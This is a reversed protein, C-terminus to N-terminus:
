QFWPHHEIEELSPRKDPTKRLCWRLLHRCEKSLFTPLSLRQKIIKQITSFPVSGFLVEYLTIGVSWVTTSRAQYQGSRFLEPPAFIATGAYEEYSDKLFDGCGFDLLKLEGTDTCILVNEPKVDRHMVGRSECHKLANVLQLIVPKAMEEDIDENRDSYTLLDECPDPREMIMVYHKPQEFWDLIRVINPCAPPSSVLLMLAVELPMSGQLSPFQKKEASEKSVYKIAVELGDSIRTGAYVTGYGGEGLKPGQIYPLGEITHLDSQDSQAKPSSEEQAQVTSYSPLRGSNLSSKKRSQGPIKKLCSQQTKQADEKSKQAIHGKQSLDASGRVEDGDFKSTSVPSAQLELSLPATIVSQQKSQSPKSLPEPFRDSWKRGEDEQGPRTLPSRSRHRKTGKCPTTKSRLPYRSARVEDGDFKSTSVPSAQLELSLPATIVSQQKSQSPKSLPEPFRDSWKRGEDEQGPRTLPSRSRHCKTGECPTTKSRLPYRSARAESGRFPM